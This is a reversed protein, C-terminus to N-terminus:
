KHLVGADVMQETIQLSSQALKAVALCSPRSNTNKVLAQILNPHATVMQDALGSRAMRALVTAALQKESSSSLYSGKEPSSKSENANPEDLFSILFKLAPLIQSCNQNRQSM